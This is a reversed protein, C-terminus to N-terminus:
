ALRETINGALGLEVGQVRQEGELVLLDNPDDPDQTRANTKETRFLAATLLLRRDLLEWKTGLELSRNEEPDLNEIGANNGGTSISLAEATPNFSTGYGFYISGNERPKYVLGARYSLMEDTRKLLPSGDPAYELEF